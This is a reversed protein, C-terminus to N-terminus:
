KRRRRLRWLIVAAPVPSWMAVMYLAGMPNGIAFSCGTGEDEEEPTDDTQSPPVPAGGGGGGHGGPDNVVTASVETGSVDTTLDEAYNPAQRYWDWTTMTVSTSELGFVGGTYTDDMTYLNGTDNTEFSEGFGWIDSIASGKVGLMYQGNYDDMASFNKNAGVNGNLTELLNLTHGSNNFFTRYSDRGTWAQGSDRQAMSINGAGISFWAEVLKTKNTNDWTEGWGDSPDLLRSENQDMKLMDDEICVSMRYTGNAFWTTNKATLDSLAMTGTSNTGISYVRFTDTGRWNVGMSGDYINTDDFDGSDGLPTVCIKKSWTQLDGTAATAMGLRTVGAGNEGSYLLTILGDVIHVDQPEISASDWGWDGIDICQGHGTWNLGDTSNALFIKWAGSDVNDNKGSYLMHYNGSAEKWVVPARVGDVHYKCETANIKYVTRTYAGMVPWARYASSINTYNNAAAKGSTAYYMWHRNSVGTALSDNWGDKMVYPDLVRGYYNYLNAGGTTTHNALVTTSRTWVRDSAETAGCIVSSTANVM